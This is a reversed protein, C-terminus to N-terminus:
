IYKSLKDYDLNNNEDFIDHEERDLMGPMPFENIAYYPMFNM